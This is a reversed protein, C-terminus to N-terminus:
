RCEDLHWKDGPRPRRRRLRDAFSEGFKKCWRRVTEHSIVVRGVTGGTDDYGWERSVGQAEPAYILAPFPM